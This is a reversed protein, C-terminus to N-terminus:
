HEGSLYSMTKGSIFIVPISDIIDDSKMMEIVSMGDRDGFALIVASINERESMLMNQTESLGCVQVPEYEDGFIRALGELKEKNDGGILLRRYTQM